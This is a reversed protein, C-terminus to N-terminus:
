EKLNAFPLRRHRALFQAILGAEVLRPDDDPTSKWCVILERADALQWVLRGGWHGVAKGNGFSWFQSLRSRLTAKGTPSGAKGIYVTVTNPVWKDRLTKISVNPDRGKFFGGTGPNVFRPQATSARTLLYVGRVTPMRKRDADLTEITEFGEFGEHRLEAHSEFLVARRSVHVGTCVRLSGWGVVGRHTARPTGGHSSSRGFLNSSEVNLKPLQREVLQAVAADPQHSAGDPIKGPRDPGTLLSASEDPAAFWAVSRGPHRDPGSAHLAPPRPTDTDTFFSRSM